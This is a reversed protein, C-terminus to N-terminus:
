AFLAIRDRVTWKCRYNFDDTVGKIEHNIRPEIIGNNKKNFTNTM